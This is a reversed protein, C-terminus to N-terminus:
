LSIGHDITCDASFDPVSRTQTITFTNLGKTNAQWAKSSSSLYPKPIRYLIDSFQEPKAAARSTLLAGSDKVAESYDAPTPPRSDRSSSPPVHLTSCFPM